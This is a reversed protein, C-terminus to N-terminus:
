PRRASEAHQVTQSNHGGTPMGREVFRGEHLYDHFFLPIGEGLEADPTTQLHLHLHPESSRGSNGVRGIVQGTFVRDGTRVAISGRMLHCLFLLEDPAVDIVVHNGCSKWWAIRGGVPTDGADDAVRRVIGGAPARVPVGYAYYDSVSAGEGAFSRGDRVVHLDYAWREPPAFAHYNVDPASGGWRVLVPGDLPLRFRVESPRGDRSSPYTTYAVIPLASVTALVAYGAARGTTWSARGRVSLVVGYTMVLIAAFTLALPGIHWLVVGPLGPRSHLVLLLLVHLLALLPGAYIWKDPTVSPALTIRMGWISVM